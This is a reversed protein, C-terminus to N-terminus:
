SLWLHFATLVVLNRSHTSWNGSTARLQQEPLDDECTRAGLSATEASSMLIFLLSCGVDLEATVALIGLVGFTAQLSILVLHPEPSVGPCRVDWHVTTLLILGSLLLSRDFERAGACLSHLVSLIRFRPPEDQNKSRPYKALGGNHSWTNYYCHCMAYMVLMSYSRQWSLSFSFFCFWFVGWFKLIHYSIHSALAFVCDGSSVQLSHELWWCIWM